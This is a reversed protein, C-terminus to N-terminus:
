GREYIGNGSARAADGASVFVRLRSTTEEGGAEGRNSLSGRVRGAAVVVSSRCRRRAAEVEASGPSVSALEVAFRIWSPHVALQVTEEAAREGLLVAEEERGLRHSFPVGTLESTDNDNEATTLNSPM